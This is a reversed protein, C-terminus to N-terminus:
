SQANLHLDTAHWNSLDMNILQQLEQTDERLASSIRQRADAVLLPKSVQQALMSRSTHRIFAPLYPRMRTRLGVSRTWLSRLLPNSIIGTQNHSFATDVQYDPDVDLFSFLDRLLGSSDKQLQDFLYVRINDASFHEYFPKLFHHYRGCGIYSGFAIDENLPGTLERDVIANFDDVLELGDRRRGLYHAYARDVPNRLIAVFKTSPALTEKIRKATHISQLYVPSIDGIARENTVGRFQAEYAERSSIWQKAMAQLTANEWGPQPDQAVFYNPSKRPSVYIDPHQGLYHHLSTTGSRSAGIVVFNPLSAM